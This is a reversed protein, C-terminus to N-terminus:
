SVQWFLQGLNTLKLIDLLNTAEMIKTQVDSMLSKVHMVKQEMQTM